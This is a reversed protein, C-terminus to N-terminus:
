RFLEYKRLFLEYKRDLSCLVCAVEKSIRMYIKNKKIIANLYAGTIDFAVVKRREKACICSLSFIAFM